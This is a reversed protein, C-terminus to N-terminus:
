RQLNTRITRFLQVPTDYIKTETGYGAGIWPTVLGDNLAIFLKKASM